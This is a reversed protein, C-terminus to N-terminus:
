GRDESRKPSRSLARLRYWGSCLEDDSLGASPIFGIIQRVRLTYDFKEKLDLIDFVWSPCDDSVEIVRHLWEKFEEFTIASITLCTTAFGIDASDERTLRFARM